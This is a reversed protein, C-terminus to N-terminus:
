LRLSFLIRVYPDGGGRGRGRPLVSGPGQFFTTGLVSHHVLTLAVIEPTTIWTIEGDTVGNEIKWPRSVAGIYM